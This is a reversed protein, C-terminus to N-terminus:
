KNAIQSTAVALRGAIERALNLMVKAGIAPEQSIFREMFEASLLLARTDKRAVVSATRPVATLFGIEGFTDGPGLIYLPPGSSGDSFVEALGSLLVYLTDDRDGQRMILDGSALEIMTASSLFKQAEERSLGDLLIVKHLPDGSVRESLLDFFVDDELFAASELNLYDPYNSTFWNRGRANDPAENALRRLPSRVKEFYEQDGMLMLIPVKFGYATDNYGETYRRYGLHEYFPLLHPSCDGYNM